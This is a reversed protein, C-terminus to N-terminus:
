LIPKMVVCGIANLSDKLKNYTKEDPFTGIIAGGSGAFKASAGAARATEIM